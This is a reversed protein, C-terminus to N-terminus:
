ILATLMSYTDRLDMSQLSLCAQNSRTYGNNILLSLLAVNDPHEGGDCGNALCPREEQHCPRAQLCDM